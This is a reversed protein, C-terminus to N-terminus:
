RLVVDDHGAATGAVALTRTSERDESSPYQTLDIYQLYRTVRAPADGEVGSAM